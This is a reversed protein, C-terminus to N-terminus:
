EDGSRRCRKAWKLELARLDVQERVEDLLLLVEELVQVVELLGVGEQVALAPAQLGLFFGHEATQLVNRLLVLVDDGSLELRQLLGFVLTRRCVHCPVSQRFDKLNERNLVITSM